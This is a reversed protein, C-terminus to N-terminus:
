DDDNSPAYINWEQLTVAFKSSVSAGIWIGCVTVTAALLCDILRIKPVKKFTEKNESLFIIKNVNKLVQRM